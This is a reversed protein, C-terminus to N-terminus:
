ATLSQSQLTGSAQPVNGARLVHVYRAGGRDNQLITELRYGETELGKNPKRLQYTAQMPLLIESSISGSSELIRTYRGHVQPATESILCGGNLGPSSPNINEDDVIFISPNLIVLRRIWRYPQTAPRGVPTTGEPSRMAAVAYVFSRNEEFAIIKIANAQPSDFAAKVVRSYSDPGGGASALYHALDFIERTQLCPMSAEAADVAQGRAGLVAPILTAVLAAGILQWTFHRLTTSIRYSMLLGALTSPYCAEFAAHLERLLGTTDQISRPAARLSPGQRALSTASFRLLAKMRLGNATM